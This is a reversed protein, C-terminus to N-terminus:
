DCGCFEEARACCREFGSWGGTRNGYALAQAAPYASASRGRSITCEAITARPRTPQGGVADNLARDVSKVTNKINRGVVDLAISRHGRAGPASARARYCRRCHGCNKGIQWNGMPGMEYPVIGTEIECIAEAVGCHGWPGLDTRPSRESTGAFPKQRDCCSVNLRGAFM